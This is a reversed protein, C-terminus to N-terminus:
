TKYEKVIRYVIRSIGHAVLDGCSHWYSLSVFESELGVGRRSVAPRDKEFFGKLDRGIELGFGVEAPGGPYLADLDRGLLSAREDEGGLVLPGPLVTIGEIHLLQPYREDSAM